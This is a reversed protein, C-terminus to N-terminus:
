NLTISKITFNAKVHNQWIQKMNVVFSEGPGILINQSYNLPVNEFSYITNWNPSSNGNADLKYLWVGDPYETQLNIDVSTINYKSTNLLTYAYPSNSFGLNSPYNVSYGDVPTESIGSPTMYERMVTYNNPLTKVPILPIAINSSINCQPCEQQPPCEQHPPCTQQPPCVQQPPCQPCEQHPPCTQQPPCVQQPPCQPCEQQPPCEQHPPCTQQLPCEQHPPCEQQPQQPPCEQVPLEQQTPCSQPPPCTAIIPCVNTNCTKNPCTKDPCSDDPCSPCKQNPCKVNKSHIYLVIGITLLIALTLFFIYFM